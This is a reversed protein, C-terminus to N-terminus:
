GFISTWSELSRPRSPLRASSARRQIPHGTRTVKLVNAASLTFEVFPRARHPGLHKAASLMVPHSEGRIDM